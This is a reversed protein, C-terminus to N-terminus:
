SVGCGIRIYYIGSVTLFDLVLSKLKETDTEYTVNKWNFPDMLSNNSSSGSSVLESWSTQTRPASTVLNKFKRYTTLDMIYTPKSFDAVM